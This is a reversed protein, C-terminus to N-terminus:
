EVIVTGKMYPHPACHYGYSGAETFTYSYSKEKDLLPGNLDTFTDGIVNHQVTDKNTWTVKTGVSVKIVAPSYKFNKIEVSDTQVADEVSATTSSEVAPQQTSYYVFGAGALVVVAVVAFILQKM